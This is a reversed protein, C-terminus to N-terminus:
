SGLVRVQMTAVVPPAPTPACLGNGPGAPPAQLLVPQGGVLVRTGVNAWQVKVCPAIFACGAVVIQNTLTAAPLGNVLVRPAMPVVTAVGTGHPCTMVAGTHFIFGPM